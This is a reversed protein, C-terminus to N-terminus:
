MTRYFKFEGFYQLLWFFVDDPGNGILRMLGHTVWSFNALNMEDFRKKFSENECVRQETYFRNPQQAREINENELVRNLINFFLNEGKLRTEKCITLKETSWRHERVVCVFYVFLIELAFLSVGHPPPDNFFSTVILLFRLRMLRTHNIAIDKSSSITGTTSSLAKSSFFPLKEGSTTTLTRTAYHCRRNFGSRWHKDFSQLFFRSM